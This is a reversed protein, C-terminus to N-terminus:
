KTTTLIVKRKCKIRNLAGFMKGDMNKLRHGEDFLLMAPSNLAAMDKSKLLNIFLEYGVFIVGGLKEWKQVANIAQSRFKEYSWNFKELETDWNSLLIVPMVCVTKWSPFMECLVLGQITKGLGMGHALICGYNNVVMRYMFSIGDIQHPDLFELIDNRIKPKDEQGTFYFVSHFILGLVFTFVFNVKMSVIIHGMQNWACQNCLDVAKEKMRIRNHSLQTKVKVSSCLIFLFSSTLSSPCLFVFNGKRNSNDTLVRRKKPDPTGIMRMKGPEAINKRRNQGVIKKKVVKM